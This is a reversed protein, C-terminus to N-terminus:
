KGRKRQTEAPIPADAIKKYMWYVKFEQSSTGKGAIKVTADSSGFDLISEITAVSAANSMGSVQAIVTGSNDQLQVGGVTKTADSGGIAAIIHYVGGGTFNLSKAETYSTASSGTTFADSGYTYDSGGANELATVRTDLSSSATELEDVDKVLGSSEDGVTTELATVRESLDSGGGGGGAKKVAIAENVLINPINWAM